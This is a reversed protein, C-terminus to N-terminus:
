KGAIRRLVEVQEPSNAFPLKKALDLFAEIRDNAKAIKFQRIMALLLEGYATAATHFAYGCLHTIGYAPINAVGTLGSHTYWSLKPYDVEYIQDFPQGLKSVRDPLRLGSWHEPNNKGPWLSNRMSLIAQASRAVFIDERATEVEAAPNKKKFAIVKRAVRLREVDVFAVMKEWGNPIMELLRVDVALEFLARALMTLAQFHLSKNLVLLTEINGLTRYYTGIFCQERLSIPPLLMDIVGKVEIRDFDNMSKIVASFKETNASASAVSSSM